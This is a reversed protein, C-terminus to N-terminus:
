KKAAVGPKVKNALKGQILFLAFFFFFFFLLWGGERWCCCCVFLCVSPTTPSLPPPLEDDWKLATNEASEVKLTKEPTKKGNEIQSDLTANLLGANKSNITKDVSLLAIAM